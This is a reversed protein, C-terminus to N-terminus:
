KEVEKTDLISKILEFEPESVDLKKLMAKELGALTLLLSLSKGKLNISSMGNKDKEISIKCEENLAKLLKDNFTKDNSHKEFFEKIM